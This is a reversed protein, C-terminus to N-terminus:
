AWLLKTYLDRKTRGTPEMMGSSSANLTIAGLRFASITSERQRNLRRLVIRTLGAAILRSPESRRLVSTSSAKTVDWSNVGALALM